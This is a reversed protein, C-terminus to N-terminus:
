HLQKRELWHVCPAVVVVVVVVVVGVVGVVDGVGGGGGGGGRGVAVESPVSFTVQSSLASLGSVELQM